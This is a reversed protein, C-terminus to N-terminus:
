ARALICGWRTIVRLVRVVRAVHLVRLNESVFYGFTTNEWFHDWRIHSDNGLTRDNVACLNVVTQEGGSHMTTM